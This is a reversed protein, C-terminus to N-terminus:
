DSKILGQFIEELEAKCWEEGAYNNMYINHGTLNIYNSLVTYIYSVVGTTAEFDSFGEVIEKYSVAGTVEIGIYSYRITRDEGEIVASEDEHLTPWLLINIPVLKRKTKGVMLTSVSIPDGEFFKEPKEYNSLM